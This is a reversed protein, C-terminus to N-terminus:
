RDEAKRAPRLGDLESSTFGVENGDSTRMAFYLRDPLSVNEEVACARAVFKSIAGQFLYDCIRHPESKCQLGDGFGKAFGFGVVTVPIPSRNTVVIRANWCEGADTKSKSDLTENEVVVTLKPKPTRRSGIWGFARSIAGVVAILLFVPGDWTRVFDLVFDKMGMIIGCKM